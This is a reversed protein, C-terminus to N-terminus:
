EGEDFDLDIDDMIDVELEPNAAAAAATAIAAKRQDAIKKDFVTKQQSFWPKIKWHDLRQWLPFTPQGDVNAKMYPDAGAATTYRQLGIHTGVLAMVEHAVHASMKQNKDNVGLSYCRELFGLQSVTLKAGKGRGPKVVPMFGTLV